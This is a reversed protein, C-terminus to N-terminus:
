PAANPEPKATAGPQESHVEGRGEIKALLSIATEDKPNMNLLYRLHAVAEQTSGTDHLVIALYIRADRSTPHIELTRRFMAIAEASKGEKVLCLGLNYHADTSDPAVRVARKLYEEAEPIRGANIRMVGLINLARVNEPELEVVREYIPATAGVGGPGVSRLRALFDLAQPNNWYMGVLTEIYRPAQEYIHRMRRYRVDDPLVSYAKELQGQLALRNVRSRLSLEERLQKAEQESGVGTLYPWIDEMPEIFDANNLMAGRAYRGEYQTYPQDDTNVAGEGTWRQLAEEACLFTDLFGAPTHLGFPELDRRVAEANLRERLKAVDIKLPGATAALLSYSGSRCQEDIGHTIWLSAHPFVSQFTRAIIKFEAKRLLQTPVWQVFVGDDTLHERVLGYFEQTYLVWSDGSKPHTADSVIVPWKRHSMMLYNRGDDIVVHSKPNSLLGNNEESLLSAAEVVSSELDVITLHKVEPIQTTAGAAIGGGFCIMLVEDPKPHLMPALDGIMKFCLQHAYLVPVESVGNIYVTKGNNVRDRTVVATGTRGERYFLIDTNRALLFDTSLFVRQCLNSPVIFFFVLMAIAYVVVTGTVLRRNPAAGSALLAVGM